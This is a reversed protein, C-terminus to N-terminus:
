FDDYICGPIREDFSYLNSKEAHELDYVNMINKLPNLVWYGRVGATDDYM